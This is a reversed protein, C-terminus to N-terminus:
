KVLKLEVEKITCKFYCPLKKIQEASQKTKFLYANEFDKDLGHMSTVGDSKWYFEDDESQLVYMIREM